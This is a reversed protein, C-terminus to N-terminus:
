KEQFNFVMNKQPMFNYKTWFYVTENGINVTKDPPYSFDTISIEPAVILQYNVKELAKNWAQTTILIYEARHGLLKQRYSIQLQTEVLSDVIFSFFLGSTSINFPHLNEQRGVDVISVSDVEGYLDDVPFPYFLTHNGSKPSKLFYEGNVFFHDKEIKFTISEKFFNLNQADLSTPLFLFTYFVIAGILLNSYRM